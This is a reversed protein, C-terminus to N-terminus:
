ASGKLYYTCHHHSCQVPDQLALQEDAEYSEWLWLPSVLIKRAMHGWQYSAEEQHRTLIHTCEAKGSEFIVAQGGGAEAHQATHNCM